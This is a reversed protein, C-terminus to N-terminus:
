AKHFAAQAAPDAARVHRPRPVQPSHGTRRLYVWGRQAPVEERGIRDAIWAAVRACTWLGGGPPPEALAVELAARGDADLLPAAGPNAHRRDALGEPGDANYRRVVERVWRTSYGTVEAVERLSRGSALLWVMQWRSREVPDRAARHRVTLEEAGLHDAVGFRTRGM